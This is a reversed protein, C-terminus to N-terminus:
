RDGDFLMELRLSLLPKSHYNKEQPFHLQPSLEFFVWDRHLRYRYLLLLIYDSVQAEPESVGVVSAQYLLATRENLTQYISLDQRMDFNQKADLWTVISSARFLIPESIVRELDLQTTEGAGILNFWFLSEAAKLQWQGLPIAYSGRARTFPQLSGNSARIGADTSFHWRSEESKEYRAAVGYSQPAVVKEQLVSQSKPPEGTVNQEPNSEVLLHLREEAVPLHLKARGSLVFKRDGGTVEVRTLDLQFVSQNSEQFNRDDGFFRDIESAFTVFKRSLYDRPADISYIYEAPPDPPSTSTQEAGFLPLPFFIASGLALNAALWCLGIKNTNM